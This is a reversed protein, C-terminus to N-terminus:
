NSTKKKRKEKVITNNIKSESTNPKEWQVKKKRTQIRPWLAKYKKSEKYYTWFGQLKRKETTSSKSKRKPIRQKNQNYTHTYLSM